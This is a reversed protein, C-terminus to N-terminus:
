SNVAPERMGLRKFEEAVLRALVERMECGTVAAIIRLQHRVTKTSFILADEELRHGADRKETKAVRKM